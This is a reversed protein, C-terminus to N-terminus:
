IKEVNFINDLSLTKMLSLLSDQGVKVDLNVGDKQVLKLFFGIVSSTISSSDAFIITLSKAGKDRLKIANEKILQYDDINKVDGTIKLTNNNEVEVKINYEM